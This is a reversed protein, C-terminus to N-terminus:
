RHYNAYLNTVLFKASGKDDSDPALTPLTQTAAETTEPLSSTEEHAASTTAVEPNSTTVVDTEDHFELEVDAKEDFEPLTDADEEEEKSRHDSPPPSTPDPKMEDLVIAGAKNVGPLEDKASNPLVEKVVDIVFTKASPLDAIAELARGKEEVQELLSPEKKDHVKEPEESTTTSTSLVMTVTTPAPTATTTIIVPVVDTPIVEVQTLSNRLVVERQPPPRDESRAVDLVEAAHIIERQPEVREDTSGMLVYTSQPQVATKLAGEAETRLIPLKREEGNNTIRDGSDAMTNEEIAHPLNLKVGKDIPSTMTTKTNVQHRAAPRDDHMVGYESAAHFHLVARSSTLTACHLIAFILLIM